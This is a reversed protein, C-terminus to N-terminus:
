EKGLILDVVWCGRVHPGPGRCHALVEADTCGAEELADALIPLRDFACDTYIACALTGVNSTLWRPDLTLPGFPNRFIDRLIWCQARREADFTKQDGNVGTASVQIAPVRAAWVSAEQARVHAKGKRLAEWPAFKGYGTAPLRMAEET